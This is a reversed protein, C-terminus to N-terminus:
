NGDIRFLKRLGENQIRYDETQKKHWDREKVLSKNERDLRVADARLSSSGERELYWVAGLAVVVTLWLIDRITFRLM